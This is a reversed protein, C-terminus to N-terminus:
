QTKIHLTVNIKTNLRKNLITLGFQVFKGTNASVTVAKINTVTDGPSAQAVTQVVNVKNASETIFTRANLAKNDVSELAKPASSCILESCCEDVKQLSCGEPIVTYTKCRFTYLFITYETYYLLM